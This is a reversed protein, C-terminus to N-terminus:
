IGGTKVSDRLTTLNAFVAPDCGTEACIAAQAATLQARAGPVAALAPAPRPTVSKGGNAKIADSVYEDFDAMPMNALYKKPATAKDDSWVSAPALGGLTVLDVCGKRRRAAEIVAREQALKQTETELKIHSERWVEAEALADLISAKGSLRMFRSLSAAVAAQKEEPKDVQPPAVDAAAVPTEVADDAGGDAADEAANGPKEGKIKAMADDLSMTMDLGLAKCVKMFEELSMANEGLTTVASAAMLPELRRTAPLNTIAVNMVSTIQDGDTTFAPSMFRWEKARLAEAAPETWRVNVAWLEGNRLELNFWGAAKGAAAPDLSVGALSAHDYDIMLDIGHAGYEAMVKSAAEADFTFTGKTTEVQGATFLRFESPPEDGTLVVSLTV